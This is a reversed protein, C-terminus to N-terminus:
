IKGAPGSTTTQGSIAKGRVLSATTAAIDRYARDRSLIMSAGSDTERQDQRRRASSAPIHCRVVYKRRGGVIDTTHSQHHLMRGDKGCATPRTRISGRWGSRRGRLPM